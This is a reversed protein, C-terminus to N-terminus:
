KGGKKSKVVLYDYDKKSIYGANYSQRIFEQQNGAKYADILKSNKLITDLPQDKGRVVNNLMIDVMKDTAKNNKDLLTIYTFTHRNRINDNKSTNAVDKIYKLPSKGKNDQMWNILRNDFVALNLLKSNTDEDFTGYKILLGYRHKVMAEGAAKSQAETIKTGDKIGALKKIQSAIEPDENKLDAGLYLATNGKDIKGHFYESGEFLKTNAIAKEPVKIKPNVVKDEKSFARAEEMAVGGLGLSGIVKYVDWGVPGNPKKVIKLVHLDNNYTAIPFDHETFAQRSYEVELGQKKLKKIVDPIAKTSLSEYFETVGKTGMLENQRQIPIVITDLGQTLAEDIAKVIGLQYFKDPNMPFDAVRERAKLNNFNTVADSVLDETAFVRHEAKQFEDMKYLNTTLQREVAEQEWITKRINQYDLNNELMSDRLDVLKQIRTDGSDRTFEPKAELIKRAEQETKIEIDSRQRTLKQYAEIDFVNKNSEYFNTIIDDRMKRAKALASHYDELEKSAEAHAKKYEEKTYTTRRASKYLNSNGETIDQKTDLKNLLKESDTSEFLGKGGREAQAWDSQIENLVLVKKGGLSGNEALEPIKTQHTRIWGLQNAMDYKDDTAADDLEQFRHSIISRGSEPKKTFLETVKYDAKYEKGGDALTYSSYNEYHPGSAEISRIKLGGQEASKDILDLWESAKLTRNDNAFSSIGLQSIEKESVQKGKLFGVLDNYNFKMDKANELATISKYTYDISTRGGGGAVQMALEKGEEYLKGTHKLGAMGTVAVGFGQAFKNVDVQLDGDEDISVGNYTGGLLGATLEESMKLKVGSKDGYVAKHAESPSLGKDRLSMYDLLNALRQKGKSKAEPTKAEKVANRAKILDPDTKLKLRMDFFNKIPTAVSQPLRANDPLREGALLQEMPLIHGDSTIVLRQNPYWEADIIDGNTQDGRIVIPNEQNRINKYADSGLDIVEAEIAPAPLTKGSATAAMQAQYEQSGLHTQRIANMSSAFSLPNRLDRQDVPLQRIIEDYTKADLPNEFVRKVNDFLARTRGEQGPFRSRTFNWLKQIINVKAPGAVTTAAMNNGMSPQTIGGAFRYLDKDNKFLKAMSRILDKHAVMEPSTVQVNKIDRDLKIFDIAEMDTGLGMTNKDIFHKMVASDVKDRTEKPLQKVVKFFTDDAADIYNAFTKVIDDPSLGQRNLAKYLANTEMAKMASYEKNATEWGQKWLAGEPITEGWKVIETNVLKNAHELSKIQNYSLKNKNDAIFDGITQKLTILADGDRPITQSDIKNLLSVLKNDISPDKFENPINGKVEDIVNRLDFNKGQTYHQFTMKVDGYFKKINERYAPLDKQVAEVAANVDAGAVKETILKSRNILDNTFNKIAIDSSRAGGVVNSMRANVEALVKLIADDEAFQKTTSLMANPKLDINYYKAFQGVLDLAEERTMDVHTLAEEVAGNVNGDKIFRKIRNATNLVGKGLMALPKALTAAVIEMSGDELMKQKMQALTLEDNLKLNANLMDGINGAETGILAGGVSAAGLLWPNKTFKAATKFGAIGGGISGGIGGANTQLAELMGTDNVLHEVGQADKVYVAWGSSADGEENLKAYADFGQSDLEDIIGQTLARQTDIVELKGKDSGLSKVLNTLVPTPLNKANVIARASDKYSRQDPTLKADDENEFAYKYAKGPMGFFTLNVAQGLESAAGSVLEKAMDFGKELKSLPRLMSSIKPQEITVDVQGFMKNFDETSVETPANTNTDVPATQQGFMADFTDKDVEQPQSTQLQGSQVMNAADLAQQKFDSSFNDQDQKLMNQAETSSYNKVGPNTYDFPM